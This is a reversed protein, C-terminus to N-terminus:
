NVFSDFVKNDLGVAKGSIAEGDLQIDLFLVGNKRICKMPQGNFTTSDCGYLSNGKDHTGPAGVTYIVGDIQIHQYNHNHGQLVIDVGNDKFVPQFCSFQGNPGHDSKVTAFPQHVVVLKHLIPSDLLQKIEQAQTSSCGFNGNADVTVTLVKGDGFTKANWNKTTGLWKNITSCSDHNGCAIQTNAATFGLDEIASFWGSSSDGYWLDGAVMLVDSQCDAALKFEPGGNRTDATVGVRLVGSAPAGLVCNTPQIDPVCEGTVPDRHQGSPCEPLGPQSVKASVFGSGAKDDTVKLGVTVSPTDPMVFSTSQAMDNAYSAGSWEYSVITGDPDSSGSASVAVTDGAKATQQVQIKAIPPKNPPTVPTCDKNYIVKSDTNSKTKVAVECYQSYKKSVYKSLAKDIAKKAKKDDKKASWVDGAISPALILALVM